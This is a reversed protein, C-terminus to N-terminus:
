RGFRGFVNHFNRSQDVEKAFYETRAGPKSESAPKVPTGKWATGCEACRRVEDKEVKVTLCGCAPCKETKDNTMVKGLDTSHTTMDREAAGSKLYEVLGLTDTGEVLRVGSWVCADMRNPSPAGPVYSTLEDELEPLVGVIHVLGQETAAAVPSARVIKGRTAQVDQYVVSDGNEVQTITSKVMDGGYNREGLIADARVEFYLEVAASAWRSPLPAKLSRDRIVYMHKKRMVNPNLKLIRESPVWGIPAPGGASAVVGAENTSCGSPDVGVFIKDLLEWPVQSGSVRTEDIMEQKWLAGPVDKSDEAMIERRVSATTMDAVVEAIGKDSVFPNDYSTWHFTAWRGSNDREAREYMKAAHRPDQAKTVSVSELSPPTYIFVADGNNDILMPAGVDSWTDESMLQFEDLILVDAYDGRLTDANWATKARIRNETGPFEISHETENKVVIRHAILQAFARVIEFWFKKLQDSTPVAYLVRKGREFARGAMVAAGVTKGGRRGARVIKRKHSDIIMRLQKQHKTVDPYDIFVKVKPQQAAAAVTQNTAGSQSQSQDSM